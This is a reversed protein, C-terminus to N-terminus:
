ISTIHWGVAQRHDGAPDEEAASFHNCMCPCSSLYQLIRYLVAHLACVM